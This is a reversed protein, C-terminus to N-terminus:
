HLLCHLTRNDTSEELVMQYIGVPISKAKTGNITVPRSHTLEKGCLYSKECRQLCLPGLYVVEIPAIQDLDEKTALIM